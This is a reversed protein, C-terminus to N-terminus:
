KVKWSKWSDGLTPSINTQPNQVKNNIIVSRISVNSSVYESLDYYNVEGKTEKIKQLLHYTFMGHQKEPYPLASEDGSSATFVVLNGALITENPRVKVGRAALLGLERGGGSFCADLFVTVRKSPFENLKKYFDSLKLAFQLDSGSVDVPILYPEKTKEDPFGHGAYYVFFEGQGKTSKIISNIQNMARHMEMARANKLFIINAEPVGFVKVAYEKFIEADHVAFAVNMEANLKTQYSSYDENGIILAFRNLNGTGVVPINIDVDSPALTKTKDAFVEASKTSQLRCEVAFQKKTQLGRQDTVTAIITNEYGPKLNVKVKYTSDDIATATQNNVTVSQIGNKDKASLVVSYLTSDTIPKLGEDVGEPTLIAVLPPTKDIITGPEISMSLNFNKPRQLTFEERQGPNVAADKSSAYFFPFQLNLSGSSFREDILFSVKTETNFAIVKENSPSVLQVMGPQNHIIKDADFALVSTKDVIPKINENVWTVKLTIDLTNDKIKDVLMAVSCNKGQDTSLILDQAKGSSILIIMLMLYLFLHKKM